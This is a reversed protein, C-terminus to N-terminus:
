SGVAPCGSKTYRASCSVWMGYSHTGFHISWRTVCGSRCSICHMSVHVSMSMTLTLPDTHLNSSSERVGVCPVGLAAPPRGWPGGGTEWSGVLLRGPRWPVLLHRCSLTKYKNMVHQCMSESHFGIYGDFFQDLVIFILIDVYSSVRKPFSLRYEWAELLM